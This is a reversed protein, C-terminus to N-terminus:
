ENVRIADTLVAMNMADMVKEATNPGLSDAIDPILMMFERLFDTYSGKPVVLQLDDLVDAVAIDSSPAVRACYLREDHACINRFDKIHDYALRLRRPTIRVPKAHCSAYLESYVKAIDNRIAEPQFCYFKFAQGLTMYKMLVWIPVEDHNQIYHEIYLKRKPRHSPNRGLATEFDSILRSVQRKDADYNAPDLYPECEAEHTKAFCYSSVTKLTEEAISFRGFLLLRLARDFKFLDYISSFTTGPIYRDEGAAATAHKDIFLSKYGNVVSYYGERLLVDRTEDDTSVGRSELLSIQEDISKFPKDM